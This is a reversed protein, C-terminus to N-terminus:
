IKGQLCMVDLHANAIDHDMWMIVSAKLVTEM